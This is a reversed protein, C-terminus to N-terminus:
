GIVAADDAGPCIVTTKGVERLIWKVTYISDKTKDLVLINKSNM